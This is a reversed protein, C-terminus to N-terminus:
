SGAFLATLNRFILAMLVLVVLLSVGIVVAKLRKPKPSAATQEAPIQVALTALRVVEDRGRRAMVDDPERALRLRYLRGVTALEGRSMALTLLRDHAAEDEWHEALSRWATALTGSPRHEDAIFNVYVLGCQSCSELGERRQSVCKPCFGAPVEFLEEDALPGGPPKGAGTRVVRLAPSSARAVPPAPPVPEAPPASAPASGPVPGERPPPSAAGGGMVVSSASASARARSEAGCRDCKVVLVGAEVRFVELPVLRECAECQFKM